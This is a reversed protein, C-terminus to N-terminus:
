KILEKAQKDATEELFKILRDKFFIVNRGLRVTLSRPLTGTYLMNDVSKRNKLHLFKAVDEPTMLNDEEFNM